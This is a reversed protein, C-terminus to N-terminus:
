VAVGALAEVARRHYETWVDPIPSGEGGVRWAEAEAHGLWECLGPRDRPDLEFDTVVETPGRNAGLVVNWYGDYTWARTVVGGM